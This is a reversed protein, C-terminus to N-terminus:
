FERDKLHFPSFGRRFAPAWLIAVLEGETAPQFRHPGEALERAGAYPTGDLTGGAEGRASVAVYEGPVAIRFEGSAPVVVGAARLRGMDLFNEVLFKRTHPTWFPGDAQTVYCRGSVIAEPVTDPNSRRGIAEFIWYYPRPRFVTEGKYDMLMEGPRTLRLVQNMMTTYERTRNRFGDAYYVVLALCATAAIATRQRLAAAAFIALFPLFPLIDRPTILSWFSFLTAFFVATAVVWFRGGFYAIVAIAPIWLLRPWWSGAVASNFTVLCYVLSPWAGRYWFYAALIAPPIVFTLLALWRRTIARTIIGAILLTVLLLATKMSTAMALGLLLGALAYRQAVLAVVALMWFAGWLNDTRYELSKLFFPPLVALLLTSWAAVRADYLRRAVVYTAGLVIAWLAIMPLRMFFLVTPREGVLALLPATLMHFLPAHNDFVDRYQLLGATWGWAVHLHQPEDSDFRYRFFAVARMLLSVAALAAITLRESRSM